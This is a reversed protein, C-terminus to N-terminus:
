WGVDTHIKKHICHGLDLISNTHFYPLNDETGNKFDEMGIQCRGYEMGFNGNWEMGNEMGNWEMGHRAQLLSLWRSNKSCSGLSKESTKYLVVLSLDNIELFVEAVTCAM